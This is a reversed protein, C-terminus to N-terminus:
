NRYHRNEWEQVARQFVKQVAADPIDGLGSYTQQDATFVAAGDPGTYVKLKRTEFVTGGILQQLIDDIQEAVPKAPETPGSLARVTRFQQILNMSPVALPRENPKAPPLTNLPIDMAEVPAVVSVPAPTPHPPAPESGAEVGAAGAPSTPQPPIFPQAPSTQSLRPPAGQWWVAWDHALLELARAHRPDAVEALHTYRQSEVQIILQGTLRDRLLRAVEVHHPDTPTSLRQRLGGLWQSTQATLSPRAPPPATPPPADTAPEGHKARREAQWMFYGVVMLILAGVVGVMSIGFILLSNDLLFNEM